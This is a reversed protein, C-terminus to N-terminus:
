FVSTGMFDIVVTKHLAPDGIVLGNPSDPIQRFTLCLKLAQQHQFVSHLTRGFLGSACFGSRRLSLDILAALSASQALIDNTLCVVRTLPMGRLGRSKRRVTLRMENSSPPIRQAAPIVKDAEPQIVAFVPMQRPQAPVAPQGDAACDALTDHALLELGARRVAIGGKQPLQGADAGNDVLKGVPCVALAIRFLCLDM